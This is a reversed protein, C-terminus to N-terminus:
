SMILSEPSYFRHCIFTDFPDKLSINLPLSWTPQSLGPQTLHSSILTDTSSLHFFHFGIKSQRPSVDGPPNSAKILSMEGASLPFSRWKWGPLRWFLGSWMSMMTAHLIEWIKKKSTAGLLFFYWLFSKLVSISTQVWLSFLFSSLFNGLSLDNFSLSM